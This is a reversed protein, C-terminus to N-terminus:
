HKQQIQHPPEVVVLGTEEDAASAVDDSCHEQICPGVLVLCMKVEPQGGLTSLLTFQDVRSGKCELVLQSQGLLSPFRNSIMGYVDRVRTSPPVVECLLVLRGHTVVLPIGEM